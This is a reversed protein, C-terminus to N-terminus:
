HAGAKTLGSAQAVIEDLSKGLDLPRNGVTEDREKVVTYVEICNGEPDLFYCSVTNGQEVYSHSVTHDIPVGMGVFKDYYGKVDEVSECRFAIHAILKADGERGPCLAFEHDDTEPNATMFVLRDWPRPGQNVKLGVVDRYFAVMKDMDRVHLVIHSLGKVSPM